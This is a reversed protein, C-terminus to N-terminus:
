KTKILYSFPVLWGAILLFNITQSTNSDAVILSSVIMAGAFILSIVIIPYSKNKLNVKNDTPNQQPKNM